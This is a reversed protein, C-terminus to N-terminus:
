LGRPQDRHLSPETPEHLALPLGQRLYCTPSAPTGHDGLPDLLCGTPGPCRLVQRPWQFPQLSHVRVRNLPSSNSYPVGVRRKLSLPTELRPQSTPTMRPLSAFHTNAVSAELEVFHGDAQSLDEICPVDEQKSARSRHQNSKKKIRQKWERKYCHSSTMGLVVSRPPATSSSPLEPILAEHVTSLSEWQHWHRVPWSVKTYHEKLDILLITKLYFLEDKSFVPCHRREPKGDLNHFNIPVQSRWLPVQGFPFEEHDHSCDCLRAKWWLVFCGVLSQQMNPFLQGLAIGCDILCACILPHIPVIARNHLVTPILGDVGRSPCKPAREDYSDVLFFDDADHGFTRAKDKGEEGVGLTSSSSWSVEMPKYPEAELEVRRYM